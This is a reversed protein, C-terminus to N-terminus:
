GGVQMRKARLWRLGVGCRLRSARQELRKYTGLSAQILLLAAM